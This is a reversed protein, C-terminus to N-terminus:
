EPRRALVAYVSVTMYRELGPIRRAMSMVKLLPEDGRNYSILRVAMGARAIDRRFAAPTIGNLGIDGLDRVPRGTLRVRRAAFYVLGRPLVAHAWPVLLGTRGHDGWPSFYLPGFGVWLEGDGHLRGRIDVLLGKVDIVHEFTDKSVALDFREDSPLQTSDQALFTVYDVLTPHCAILNRQAWEIRSADTDVGVVEAGQQALDISMAGHGCGIDLVRKGAVDPRRGFRHWFERTSERSADYTV